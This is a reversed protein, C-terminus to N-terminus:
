EGMVPGLVVRFGLAYYSDSPDHKSRHASRCDDGVAVWSGGRVVRAEGEEPGMPNTVANSPYDGYWDLCWEAVNGLMDYLGWPNPRFAGVDLTRKRNVRKASGNYPYSGNFNSMRSTLRNGFPTASRTGARCAYEWEAETPLRFCYNTPIKEARAETLKRCFAMADGWTVREVPAREAKRYSPNNLMRHDWQQQTLEYKGILYPYSITVEHRSEDESRGVEDEPSGMVFTGPSIRVFEVGGYSRHYSWRQDGGLGRSPSWLACGTAAGIALAAGCAAATRGAIRGKM